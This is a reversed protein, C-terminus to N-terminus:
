RIQICKLVHFNAIYHKDFLLRHFNIKKTDTCFEYYQKVYFETCVSRSVNSFFLPLM